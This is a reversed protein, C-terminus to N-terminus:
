GDRQVEWCRGMATEGVKVQDVRRCEGFKYAGGFRSGAGEIGEGSGQELGAEGNEARVSKLEESDWPVTGEAKLDAATM